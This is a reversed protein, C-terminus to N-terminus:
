GYVFHRNLYEHTYNHLEAHTYDDMYDRNLYLTETFGLVTMNDNSLDCLVSPISQSPNAPLPIQLSIQMGHAFPKIDTDYLEIPTIEEEVKIRGTWVDVPVMGQGWIIAKIAGVDIHADGGEMEAFVDFDYTENENTMIPLFLSIIHNAKDVYFKQIPTFSDPVSNLKYHFTIEGDCFAHIEANFKVWGGVVTSFTISIILKEDGDLIDYERANTYVYDTIKNQTSAGGGILGTLQKELKTQASALAPNEGYGEFSCGNSYKFNYAQIICNSSEGATMGTMTLVDGLDYEIGCLLTAKFPTYSVDELADAIAQCQARHTEEVGYQLFPNDEVKVIIGTNTNTFVESVKDGVKTLRIGEYCTIYDSFECGKFRENAAFSAVPSSTFTGIYLKGARNFTAFCGMAAALSGVFDRWTEINNESYLGLTQDGNPLADIVARTQALEIDCEDAALNLLEWPTGYTTDLNFTKDLKSMGDYAKIVVGFSTHKADAIFFRGAPVYEISDDALRLGISIVVEANRWSNRAINVTNLFTCNLEGIYVSGLSLDSSDSCQNNITLSGALIDDETFSVGDVTGQLHYEQVAQRQAALYDNSVNYM